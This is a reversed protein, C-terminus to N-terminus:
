HRSLLCVGASTPSLVIRPDAAGDLLTGLEKGVRAALYVTFSLQPPCDTVVRLWDASSLHAISMEPGVELRHLTPSHLLAHWDAACTADLTAVRGLERAERAMSENSGLRLVELIPHRALAAFTKSPLAAV